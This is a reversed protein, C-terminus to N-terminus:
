EAPLKRLYAGLKENEYTVSNLFLSEILYTRREDDNMQGILHRIEGMVDEYRYDLDHRTQLEHYLTEIVALLDGDLTIATGSSTTITGMTM